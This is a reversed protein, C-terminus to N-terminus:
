SSENMIIDKLNMRVAKQPKSSFFVMYEEDLRQPDELLKPNWTKQDLPGLMSARRVMNIPYVNKMPQSQVNSMLLVHNAQSGDEVPSDSIFVPVTVAGQKDFRPNSDGWDVSMTPSGQTGIQSRLLTVESRVEALQRSLDAIISEQARNVGKQQTLQAVL